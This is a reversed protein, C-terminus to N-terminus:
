TVKVTDKKPTGLVKHDLGGVVTVLPRWYDVPGKEVVAVLLAFVDVVLAKKSLERAPHEPEPGEAKVSLAGPQLVHAPDVGLVELSWRRFHM